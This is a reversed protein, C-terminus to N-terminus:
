DDFEIGWGQVDDASVKEVTMKFHDGGPTRLYVEGLDSLSTIGFGVQKLTHGSSGDLCQEVLDAVTETDMSM